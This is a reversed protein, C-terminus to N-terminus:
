ASTGAPTSVPTSSSGDTAKISARCPVEVRSAAGSPTARAPGVESMSTIGRTVTMTSATPVAAAAAQAPAAGALLAGTIALSVLGRTINM